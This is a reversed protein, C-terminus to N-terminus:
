TAPKRAPLSAEREHSREGGVPKGEDLTPADSGLSGGPRFPRRGLNESEEGEATALVRRGAPPELPRFDGSGDESALGSAAGGGL